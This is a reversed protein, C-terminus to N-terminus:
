SLHCLYYVLLYIFQENQHNKQKSSVLQVIICFQNQKKVQLTELNRFGTLTIFLYLLLQKLCFLAIFFLTQTHWALIKQSHIYSLSLDM